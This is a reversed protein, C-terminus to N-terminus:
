LLLIFLFDTLLFGPKESLRDEPPIEASWAAWSQLTGLVGSEMEQPTDNRPWQQGMLIPFYQDKKGRLIVFYQQWFLCQLLLLQQLIKYPLHTLQPVM